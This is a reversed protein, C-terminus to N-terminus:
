FVQSLTKLTETLRRHSYLSLHLITNVERVGWAHYEIAVYRGINRYVTHRGDPMHESM